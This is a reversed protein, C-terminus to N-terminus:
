YMEFCREGNPTREDSLIKFSRVGFPLIGSKQRLTNWLKAEIHELEFDNGVFITEKGNYTALWYEIELKRM